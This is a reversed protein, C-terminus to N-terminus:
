FTSLCPTYANHPTSSVQVLQGHPKVMCCGLPKSPSLALVLQIHLFSFLFCSESNLYKRGSYTACASPKRALCSTSHTFSNVHTFSQVLSCTLATWLLKQCASSIVFKSPSWLMTSGGSEMGFESTFRLLASPLTPSGWTLTPCRWAKFVTQKWIKLYIQLCFRFLGLLFAPTKENGISIFNGYRFLNAQLASM